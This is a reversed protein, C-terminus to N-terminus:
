TAVLRRLWKRRAEDFMRVFARRWREDETIRNLGAFYENMSITGQMENLVDIAEEINHKEPKEPSTVSESKKSEPPTSKKAKDKKTMSERYLEILDQLQSNTNSGRKRVRRRSRAPDDSDGSGEQLDIPEKGHSNRGALFQEEM